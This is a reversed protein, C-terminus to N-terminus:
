KNPTQTQGQGQEQSAEYRRQTAESRRRLDKVKKLLDAADGSRTATQELLDDIDQRQRRLAETIQELEAM